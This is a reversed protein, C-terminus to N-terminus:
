TLVPSSAETTPSSASAPQSDWRGEEKAKTIETVWTRTLEEWFRKIYRTSIELTGRDGQKGNKRYAMANALAFDADNLACGISAAFETRTEQVQDKSMGEVLSPALSDAFNKYDGSDIAEVLGRAKAYLPWSQGLVCQQDDDLSLTSFDLTNQWGPNVKDLLDMGARVRSTFDPVTITGEGAGLVVTPFPEGNYGTAAIDEWREDEDKWSSGGGQGWKSSSM